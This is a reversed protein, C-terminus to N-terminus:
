LKHRLKQSINRNEKIQNIENIFHIKGLKDMWPIALEIWHDRESNLATKMINICPFPAIIDLNSAQIMNDIDKKLSDADISLLRLVYELNDDALRVWNKLKLVYFAGSDGIGLTIPPDFSYRKQVIIEDNNAEM